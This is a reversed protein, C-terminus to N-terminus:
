FLKTQGLQRQIFKRLKVFDQDTLVEGFQSLLQKLKDIYVSLAHSELASIALPATQSKWLSLVKEVKEFIEHYDLQWDFLLEYAEQAFLDTQMKQKLFDQSLFKLNFQVMEKRLDSLSLAGSLWEEVIRYALLAEIHKHYFFIKGNREIRNAHLTLWAMVFRHVLTAKMPFGSTVNLKDKVDAFVELFPTLLSSDALVIATNIRDEVPLADFAKKAVLLQAMQGAVPHEIFQKTSTCLLDVEWGNYAADRKLSFLRGAEHDNKNLYHKDVDALLVFPNRSKLVEILRWESPNGPIIGVWFISKTGFLKSILAEDYVVQEAVKRYMLGRYALGLLELNQKLANYYRPLRDWFSLYSIELPGAEAQNFEAGTAHYAKIHDYILNVDGLYLDLDNADSLFTLAWSSFREFDQPQEELACYVQYFSVQLEEPEILKYGSLQEMLDDVTYLDAQFELEFLLSKLVFLSRRNPLVVVVDNNKYSKIEAALRQLFPIHDLNSDM